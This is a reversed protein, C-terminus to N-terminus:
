HGTNDERRDYEDGIDDIPFSVTFTTGKDPESEAKISGHNEEVLKKVVVLGLGTGKEKTTFFPSFIKERSEANLGPGTDKITIVVNDNIVEAQVLLLGDQEMAELANKVLNNIIEFLHHEKITIKPLNGQINLNVSIRRKHIDDELLGLAKNIAKTCDCGMSSQKVPLPGDLIDNIVLELTGVTDVIRNISNYHKDDPSLQKRVRSAFGGITALPGRVEHAMHAVLEGMAALKEKQLLMTQSAKIKLNAQRIQMISRELNSLLKASEISTSAEAAFRTLDKIDLNTIPARTIINDAIILGTSRGHWILPVIICENVQLTQRLWNVSDDSSYPSADNILLHKQNNLVRILINDTDELPIQIGKVLENVASDTDTLRRYQEIMETLTKPTENFLSYIAGAEETSDPGIAQIGSLLREERDAFFLFARNFRLGQGATIAVLAAQVIDSISNIIYAKDFMRFKKRLQETRANLMKRLEKLETVDDFIILKFTEGHHELLHMSFTADIMVDNKLKFQVPENVVTEAYSIASLDKLFTERNPLSEPLLCEFPQHLLEQNSYGLHHSAPGSCYVIQEDKDILLWLNLIKDLHGSILEQIDMASRYDFDMTRM